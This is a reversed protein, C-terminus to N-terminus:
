KDEKGKVPDYGGSHWPHCRLLRGTIMWAGRTGGHIRLADLAYQSCSPHFRCCGFFPSILARYLKICGILSCQLAYDVKATVQRFM